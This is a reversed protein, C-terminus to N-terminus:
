NSGWEPSDPTDGPPWHSPWRSERHSCTAMIVADKGPPRAKARSKLRITNIDWESKWTVQPRWQFCYSSFFFFRGSDDQGRIVDLQNRDAHQVCVSYIDKHRRQRLKWVGREAEPPAMGNRDMPVLRVRIKHRCSSRVTGYGESEIKESRWLTQKDSAAELEAKSWLLPGRWRPQHTGLHLHQFSWGWDPTLLLPRRPAEARM